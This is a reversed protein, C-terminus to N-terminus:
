LRVIEPCSRQAASKLFRLLETGGDGKLAETFLELGHRLPFSLYNLHNHDRIQDPKHPGLLRECVEILAERLANEPGYFDVITEQSRDKRSTYEKEDKSLKAEEIVFADLPLVSICFFEPKGGRHLMRSFAYVRLYHAAVVGSPIRYDGAGDIIDLGCEEVLERSAGTEVIDFFNNKKDIDEWDLSGSGSPAILGVSQSNKRSQQVLLLTGDRSFALTSAGIQNSMRNASELPLLTDDVSNLFGSYGDHILTKEPGDLYVMQFALQDTILSSCYDTESLYIPRDYDITINNCLRIKPSNFLKAGQAEKSHRVFSLLECDRAYAKDYALYKPRFFFQISRRNLSGYLLFNNINQNYIGEGGPYIKLIDDRDDYASIIKDMLAHGLLDYRYNVKVMSEPFSTLVLDPWDNEDVPLKLTASRIKEVDDYSISLAKCYPMYTKPTPSDRYGRELKSLQDVSGPSRGRKGPPHAMTLLEKQSLGQSERKRRIEKGLAKGFTQAM